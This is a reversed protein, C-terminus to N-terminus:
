RGPSASPAPRRFKGEAVGSELAHQLESAKQMASEMKPYRVERYGTVPEPTKFVELWTNYQALDHPEHLDCSDVLNM